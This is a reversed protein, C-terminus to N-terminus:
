TDGRDFLMVTAIMGLFAVGILATAVVQGCQVVSRLM